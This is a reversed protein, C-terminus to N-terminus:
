EGGTATNAQLARLIAGVADPDFSGSASIPACGFCSPTHPSHVMGCRPCIWGTQAPPMPVAPWPQMPRNRPCPCPGPGGWGCNCPGDLISSM